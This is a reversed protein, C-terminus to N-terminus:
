NLYNGESTILYKGKKVLHCLIQSYIDHSNVFKSKVVETGETETENEKVIEIGTEIGAKIVTLVEVTQVHVDDGRGVEVAVVVVNRMKKVNVSKRKM